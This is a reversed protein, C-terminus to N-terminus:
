TATQNLILGEPTIKIKKNKYLHGVARKFAKKSIGLHERIEAPDSKDTLPLFDGSIKISNYLKQAIPDISQKYGMPELTIDIKGDDRVQKVYGKIASGIKVEKHIDSNFILGFYLNNVVANVGLQSKRYPFIEVEQGKEVDIEDFFVFDEIRQSGRIAGSDEDEYVFFVYSEGVVLTDMQEEAPVFLDKELGWDLYAGNSTIKTVKMFAFNDVEVKPLKSSVVRVRDKYIFVEAFSGIEYDTEVGTFPLLVQNRKDDELIYGRPDKDVIELKHIKGNEM